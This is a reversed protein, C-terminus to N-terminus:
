TMAATFQVASDGDVGNGRRHVRVQQAIAEPAGNYLTGVRRLSPSGEVYLWAAEERGMGISCSSLVECSCSGNLEGCVAVLEGLAISFVSSIIAISSLM